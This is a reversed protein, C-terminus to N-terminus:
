EWEITAPPKSTIDYVVRSIGDIENVIRTSVYEVFNHPLATARATMFDTTNVSRLGIVDAYIRNDGVVGVSKVPLYFAYAQSASYYLNQKKLESLFIHDAERLKDLRDKNVEGIIRIGLGPGPFPHREVIETPLGITKGLKRVEDKFLMRFPELLKLQMREPLGGVNHHSKIVKAKTKSNGASEIVDPYITGQALWNIDNLKKSESEFVEIFTNGIIKRKVEPDKIGKLKSLFTDQANVLNVSLGIKEKLNNVVNLAEDKRLLGHDVMVCTLKNGLSKHLVAALVTSDVGGSLALLVEEDKVETKILANIQQLIDYSSWNQKIDCIELFNKIITIGSETHTVEPHFQLGFYKKVINEYAAVPSNNSVATIKYGDPLSEVKDGHSMWVDSSKDLNKFLISDQKIDIKAYGFERKGENIIRGEEQYALVQMGYCIGLIPKKTDFIHQDISPNGEINSSEPGGSLIFGKVESLDPIEDWPCVESYVSLERLRRAILQTYQSGFDIVLIKEM